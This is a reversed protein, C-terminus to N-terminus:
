SARPLYLAMSRRFAAPVEDVKEIAGCALLEHIATDAEQESIGSWAAAFRRAFPTPDQNVLWRLGLLLEFGARAAHLYTPAENPLTPLDVRAPAILGAEYLLRLRWVGQQTKPLKMPKGFALSALVEPLTLFEVRNGQAHFDHLVIEGKRDRHLAASPHEEPHLPCLFASGVPVDPIRLTRAQRRVLAEDAALAKFWARREEDDTPLKQLLALSEAPVGLTMEESSPLSGPRV